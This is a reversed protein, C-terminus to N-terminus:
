LWIVVVCNALWCYYPRMVWRVKMYHMLVCYIGSKLQGSWKQASDSDDTIYITDSLYRM